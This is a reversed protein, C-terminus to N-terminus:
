NALRFLKIRMMGLAGNGPLGRGAEDGNLRRGAIWKGNEYRGEDKSAILARGGGTEAEFRPTFNSGIFLFEDPAVNAILAFPRTDPAPTGRGGAAAAQGATATGAVAPPAAAGRGRGAPSRGITIRYGGLSVTEPQYGEVLAGAVKGAAQWGALQPIVGALMKYLQAFQSDVAVDEVAFPSVGMAAQAGLAYLYNAAAARSEPFFLPNGARAYSACRARFDQSYIDPSIFDLAPGVAHYVDIMRAVPGGSPYVGPSTVGPEADQWANVYMPINLEAKGEQTVKDIYRGVYYAMFVEDAWQDEGFVQAWTGSGKYGNRAWIKQTEPLLKERNKVLYDMLDAPVPKAWATEALPSRDRSDGLLGPENEVQMLIVTHQPDAQRIHRMLARYARADASMTEEGLPSLSANYRDIAAAGAGAPATGGASPRTQAVPFRKPNKKVWLPAYDANANKWTAFWILALRLNHKRAAAIQADVLSFDFKGEEPEVLEWSVTGIVTNLNMAALKDWIPKMYEVSSASSNHLEGALMLFPKGDVFMHKVAGDQAVRPLTAAQVPSATRQAPSVATQGQAVLAASLLVLAVILPSRM